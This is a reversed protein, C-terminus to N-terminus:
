ASEGCIEEYHEMVWEAAEQHIEEFDVTPMGDEDTPWPHKADRCHHDRTTEGWCEFMIESTYPQWSISEDGTAARALEEFKEVLANGLLNAERRTVDGWNGYTCTQCFTCGPHISTTTM